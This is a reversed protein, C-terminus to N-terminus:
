DYLTGKKQYTTVVHQVTMAIIANKELSLLM